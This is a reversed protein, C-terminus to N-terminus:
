FIIFIVALFEDWNYTAWPEVSVPRGERCVGSTFCYYYSQLAKMIKEYDNSLYDDIKEEKRWKFHNELM